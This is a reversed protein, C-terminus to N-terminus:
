EKRRSGDEGYKGFYGRPTVMCERGSWFRGHLVQTQSNGIFLISLMDVLAPDFDGLPHVSVAQETRYAQRVLGLPAAKGRAACAMDLLTALQWDRKRSRPNYVVLVFDGDLACRIRREITEWPTLLDSLSVCAFDHTLPAGLLSAAAALAPIGPLVRINPVNGAHAQDEGWRSHALELVLGALAYVGADGSCVLVVREGQAAADLAANCRELEGMMGSQIIRKGTLCEAPVLEIYGKYGAVATCSDLARLVAPAMLAADGPGLGVVTLLGEKM